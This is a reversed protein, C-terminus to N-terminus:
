GNGPKQAEVKAVLGECTPFSGQVGMAYLDIVELRSIILGSSEFAQRIGQEDAKWLHTRISHHANLADAPILAFLRGRPRLVRGIESLSATPDYAHELINNAIVIDFTSGKFPLAHVDAALGAGGAAEAARRLVRTVLDVCVYREARPVLRAALQGYGSGLELTAGLQGEVFEAFDMIDARLPAGRDIRALYDHEEIQQQLATHVSRRSRRSAEKIAVEQLEEQRVLYCQRPNDSVMRYVGILCKALQVPRDLSGCNLFTCRPSPGPPPWNYVRYEHYRQNLAPSAPLAQFYSEMRRFDLLTELRSRTWGARWDNFTTWVGDQRASKWPSSIIEVWGDDKWIGNPVRVDFRMPQYAGAHFFTGQRSASRTTPFDPPWGEQSSDFRLGAQRLARTLRDPPNLSASDEFRVVSVPRERGILSAHSSFERQLNDLAADTRHAPVWLGLETRGAAVMRRLAWTLPHRPSGALRTAEESGLFITSIPLRMTQLLLLGILTRVTEWGTLARVRVSLGVRDERLRGGVLLLSDPEGKRVQALVEVDLFSGFVAEAEFDDLGQNDRNELLWIVYEVSAYCQGARVLERAVVELCGGADLRFRTLQESPRVIWTRAPADRLWGLCPSVVHAPFRGLLCSTEGLDMDSALTGLCTDQGNSFELLQRLM